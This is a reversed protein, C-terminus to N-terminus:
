VPTDQNSDSEATPSAKNCDSETAPVSDFEIMAPSVSDSDFNKLKGDLNAVFNFDGFRMQTGPPFAIGAITSTSEM